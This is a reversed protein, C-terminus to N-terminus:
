RLSLFPLPRGNLSFEGNVVEVAVRYSDGDEVLFGQAVVADLMAAAQAEAMAEIGSLVVGGPANAALQQRVVETAIRRALARSAAAEAELTFADIFLVPGAALASVPDPLADAHTRVHVSAQFQEDDMAFRIPDISLAPEASLLRVILPMLVPMPDGGAAAQEEFQTQAEVLDNMAEADLRDIAMVIQADTLRYREGFTLYDATYTASSALLTGEGAPDSEGRVAINGAEFVPEGGLTRNVVLMQGMELELNGLGLYGLRYESDTSLGITDVSIALIPNSWAVSDIDLRLQLEDRDLRGDARVGSFVTESFEDAYDVAPVDADFRLGGFLSARGRFEFLYDVGLSDELEAVDAQTSDPRAWVRALGVYPGGRLVVPGHAVDVLVSLGEDLLGLGAATLADDGTVTGLPGFRERSLGVEIAATSNFWGREFSGIELSWATHDNIEAIRREFLSETMIGFVPPLAVIAAAVCILVLVAAKKM